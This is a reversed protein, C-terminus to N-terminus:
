RQMLGSPSPVEVVHEARADALLPCNRDAHRLRREGVAPTDADRLVCFSDVAFQTGRSPGDVDDRVVVVVGATFASVGLVTGPRLGYLRRRLNGCGLLRLGEILFFGVVRRGNSRDWADDINRLMQHRVPMWSTRKTPGRETYKGEILIV